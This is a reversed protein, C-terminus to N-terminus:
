DLEIKAYNKRIQIFRAVQLKTLPKRPQKGYRKINNATWRNPERFSDDNYYERGKLIRLRYLGIPSSIKTFDSDRLEKESLKTTKIGSIWYSLYQLRHAQRNTYKKYGGGYFIDAKTDKTYTLKPIEM